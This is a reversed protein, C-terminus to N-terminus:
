RRNIRGCRSESVDFSNEKLPVTIKKGPTRFYWSRGTLGEMWRVVEPRRQAPEFRFEMEDLKCWRRAKTADLGAAVLESWEVHIFDFRQVGTGLDQRARLTEATKLMPQLRMALKIAEILPARVM